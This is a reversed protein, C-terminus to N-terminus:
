ELKRYAEKIENMLESEPKTRVSLYGEIVGNKFCPFVTAKVWYIRGNRGKNCVYGQWIKGSKITSWLDFFATKPMDPHRIISHPKGILSGIQYEAVSYFSDNAFTINGKTDTSSILIEGPSLQYEKEAFNFRDSNLFKSQKILPALRELPNFSQADDYMKLLEVLYFFTDGITTLEEIQNFVSQSKQDIKKFNNLSASIKNNFSKSHENVSVTHGKTESVLKISQHMSAVSNSIEASLIHISNSIEHLKDQIKINATKTVKSLEKVENAVIAFGKGFEGARAAEITANLALLNTQDSIGNITKLLDNVFSFQNELVHMKNSVSNLQLSCTNTQQYVSEINGNISGIDSNVKEISKIIDAFENISVKVIELQEKTSKLVAGSVHVLEEGSVKILVDKLIKQDFEKLNEVM